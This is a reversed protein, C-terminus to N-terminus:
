ADKNKNSGAMMVEQVQQNLLLLTKDDIWANHQVTYITDVLAGTKDPPLGTKSALINALNENNGSYNIYYKNRLHDQLYAIMKLAINHNDKKNFYLRAITQTFDISSNINPQQVPILRQKRVLNTIIWLAAMILMIYFTYKLSEISLLASFISRNEPTRTPYRRYFDDWYINNPNLPLYSMAGLAYGSNNGTLLFYNTCAQVNTMIILQGKGYKIRLLDPKNFDNNGLTDATISSDANISKQLPYFYYSFLNPHFLTTDALQKKTDRMKFAARTSIISLDDELGISFQGVFVPDIYNTAIFITNGSEAFNAMALAEDRYTILRPTLIFYINNTTNYTEELFKKNWKNFALSNDNIYSSAFSKEALYKFVYGGMPEKDTGALVLKENITKETNKKGCSVMLILSALLLPATLQKFITAPIKLTLKM